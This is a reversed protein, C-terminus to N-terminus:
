KKVNIVFENWLEAGSALPTVRVGGVFTGDGKAGEFKGSGGVVTAPSEGFVTTTGEPKGTGDVKIWLTADKSPNVSFYTHFTGVGKTHEGYEAIFTLTGTGVSGDSFETLGIFHGLSLVHGDVNAVDMTQISTAHLFMRFKLVEDAQALGSACSGMLGITMMTIASRRTM